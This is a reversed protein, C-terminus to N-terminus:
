ATWKRKAERNKRSPVVLILVAGAVAVAQLIAFAAMNWRLLFLMGGIVLIGLLWLKLLDRWLKRGTAEKHSSVLQELAILHPVPPEILADWERLPSGLLAEFASAEEPETAEGSGAGPAATAARRIAEEDGSGMSRNKDKDRDPMRKTM